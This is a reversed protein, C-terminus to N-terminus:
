SSRLRELEAELERVKIELEARTSRRPGAPRRPPTKSMRQAAEPPEEVLGIAEADVITAPDLGCQDCSTSGMFASHVTRNRFHSRQEVVHGCYLRLRWRMLEHPPTARGLIRALEELKAPSLPPMPCCKSCHM